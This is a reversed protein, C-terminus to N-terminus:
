RRPVHPWPHARRYEISPTRASRAAADIRFLGRAREAKGRESNWWVPYSELVSGMEDEFWYVYDRNAAWWALWWDRRKAVDAADQADVNGPYPKEATVDELVKFIREPHRDPRDRLATLAWTMRGEHEHEALWRLWDNARRSVWGKDRFRELPVDEFRLTVYQLFFDLELKHYATGHNLEEILWFLVPEAFHTYVLHFGFGMESLIGSDMDRGTVRHAYIWLHPPLLTDAFGCRYLTDAMRVRHEMPVTLLGAIFQSTEAASVPPGQLVALAASPRRNGPEAPAAAGAPAVPGPRAPQDTGASAAPRGTDTPGASAPPTPTGGGFAGCGTAGVMAVALIWGAAARRGPGRM